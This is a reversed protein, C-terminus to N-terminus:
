IINVKPAKFPAELDFTNINNNNYAKITDEIKREFAGQM